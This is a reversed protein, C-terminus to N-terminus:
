ITCNCGKWQFGLSKWVEVTEKCLSIKMDLWNAIKEYARIRQEVPYRMRGDEAKKLGKRPAFVEFRFLGPYHRLTGVTVREPSLDRIAYCIEKYGKLGLELCVPDLRIRIRWGLSKLKEAAKLREYPSPTGLEFKKWADISNISFSVIISPSPKRRLLIDINTSKTTLLLYRNNQNSFWDLAPELLDPIIALSDALEGTSFVGKPIKVLEKEVDSWPNTFIVPDKNGRFTLKLYCYLCNYPCGNSLILEYFHPCIIGKPTKDFLRVFASKRVRKTYPKEFTEFSSNKLIILQSFKM